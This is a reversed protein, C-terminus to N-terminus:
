NVLLHSVFYMVGVLARVLAPPTLFELCLTYGFKGWSM